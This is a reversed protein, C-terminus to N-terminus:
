LKWYEGSFIFYPTIGYHDGFLRTLRNYEKESINTIICSKLLEEFSDFKVFFSQSFWWRRPFKNSNNKLISVRELWKSEKYLSFGQISTNHHKHEFQVILYKEEPILQQRVHYM